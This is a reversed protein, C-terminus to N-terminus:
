PNAHFEGRLQQWYEDNQKETVSNIAHRSLDPSKESAPPRRGLAEAMSRIHYAVVGCCGGIFRIGAQSANRAFDALEFRSIQNSELALPFEPQCEFPVAADPTRYGIPQCAIPVDTAKLMREATPLLVSADYSCNVGIIDAGEGALRRACEEVCVGESSGDPGINMTVMSPLGCDRITELAILAEELHKFTEAIVLDIGLGQQAAVQESMIQRARDQSKRDGCQYGPTLTLGGAVLAENGAVSRAISIAARNIDAVDGERGVSGLKEQSGYFTLAQLVEAGARKFEIHLQRLAEPFEVTVEPTFPGAQVYGRRELELVYGGDGLVVGSALLDLIGRREAM